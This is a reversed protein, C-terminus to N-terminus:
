ATKHMRFLDRKRMCCLFYSADARLCHLNSCTVVRSFRKIKTEPKQSWAICQWKRFTDFVKMIVKQQPLEEKLRKPKEASGVLFVKHQDEDRIKNKIFDWDLFIIANRRFKRPIKQLSYSDKKKEFPFLFCLFFPLEAMLSINSFKKSGKTQFGLCITSIINSTENRHRSPFFSGSAESPVKKAPFKLGEHM